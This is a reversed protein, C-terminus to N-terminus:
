DNIIQELDKLDDHHLLYVNHVSALERASRTYGATSVVAAIDAGWYSMGAAVEQVAKNGVASSYKKCQIAVKVGGKEAIVDVGQDGTAVTTKADWGNNNLTDACFTEYEAPSMNSDWALAPNKAIYDDVIKDLCFDYEEAPLGSYYKTTCPFWSFKKLFLKRESDWKSSDTYGYDDKVVLHKKKRALIPLYSELADHFKTLDYRAAELRKKKRRWWFVSGAVKLLAIYVLYLAWFGAFMWLSNGVKTPTDSDSLFWYAAIIIVILVSAKNSEKKQAITIKRKM